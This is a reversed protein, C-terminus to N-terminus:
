GYYKAKMQDLAEKADKVKGQKVQKESIEIDHNALIQYAEKNKNLFHNSLRLVDEDAAIEEQELVAELWAKKADIANELVAELTEGCTICGPLDPYYAAFGGEDEDEIIEIRYDM